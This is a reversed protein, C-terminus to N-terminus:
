VTFSTSRAANEPSSLILARMRSSSPCIVSCVGFSIRNSYSASVFRKSAPPPYSISVSVSLIQLPRAIGCDCRSCSKEESEPPSFVLTFRARSSRSFVSMRSSSSGVLWRSMCATSHSSSYIERKLPVTSVMEWSRYKRSRTTFRMMSIEFPM